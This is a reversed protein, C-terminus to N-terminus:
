FRHKKMKEAHKARGKEGYVPDNPSAWSPKHGRSAVVEAGNWSAHQSRQRKRLREESIEQLKRKVENSAFPAVQYVRKISRMYYPANDLPQGDEGLGLHGIPVGDPWEGWLNHCFFRKKNSKVVFTHMWGDDHTRSVEDNTFGPTGDLVHVVQGNYQRSIPDFVSHKPKDAATVREMVGQVLYYVGDNGPTTLLTPHVGVFTYKGHGYRNELMVKIQAVVAEDEQLDGIANTGFIKELPQRRKIATEVVKRRSRKMDDLDFHPENFEQQIYNACNLVCGKLLTKSAVQHM